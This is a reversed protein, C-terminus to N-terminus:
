INLAVNDTSARSYLCNHLLYTFVFDQILTPFYCRDVNMMMQTYGDFEGQLEKRM